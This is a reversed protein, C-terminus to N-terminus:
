KVPNPAANGVSSGGTSNLVVCLTGLDSNDQDGPLVARDERVYRADCDSGKRRPHRHANRVEGLGLFTRPSPEKPVGSDAM